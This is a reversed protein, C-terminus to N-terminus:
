TLSKLKISKFQIWWLLAKMCMMCHFTFIFIISFQMRWSEFSISLSWLSTQRNFLRSEVTVSFTQLSHLSPLSCLECQRRRAGGRHQGPHLLRHLVSHCRDVAAPRVRWVAAQLIEGMGADNKAPDIRKSWRKRFKREGKCANVGSVNFVVMLWKCSFKLM